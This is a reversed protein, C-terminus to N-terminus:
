STITTASILSKCPPVYSDDDRPIGYSVKAFYIAKLIALRHGISSVGLLKLNESDIATLIDGRIKHELCRHIVAGPPFCSSGKLQAEYQPYGLKVLWGHVDFEDWDLIHKDLM